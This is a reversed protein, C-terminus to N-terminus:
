NEPFFMFTGYVNDKWVQIATPGTYNDTAAPGYITFNAGQSTGNTISSSNKNTTTYTASKGVALSASYFKEFTVSANMDLSWSTSHMDTATQGETTTTTYSSTYTYGTPQQGPTAPIYNMILDHGNPLEYRASNVTNPNFQPNAYFPDASAIELFDTSTL